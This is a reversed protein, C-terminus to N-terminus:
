HTVFTGIITQRGMFDHVACRVGRPLGTGNQQGLKALEVVDERDQLIVREPNLQPYADLIQKLVAGHGGGVDVLEVAEEEGEANDGTALVGFDFHGVPPIMVDLGKLGRQFTELREPNQGM